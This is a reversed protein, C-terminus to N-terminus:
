GKGSGRRPGRARLRFPYRTVNRQFDEHYRSVFERKRESVQKQFASEASSKEEQVGFFMAIKAITGDLDEVLEEYQITIFSAGMIELVRKSLADNREIQYVLEDIKHFSYLVKSEDVEQPNSKKSVWEGTEQAFYLSVAREVIDRRTLLVCRGSFLDHFDAWEQILSFQGVTMKPVVLKSGFQKQFFEKFSKEGPSEQYEVFPRYHPVFLEFSINISTRRTLM